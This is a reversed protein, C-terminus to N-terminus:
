AEHIEGVMVTQVGAIPSSSHILELEDCSKDVIQSDSTNTDSSVYSPKLTIEEHVDEDHVTLELNLEGDVQVIPEDKEVGGVINKLFDHDM